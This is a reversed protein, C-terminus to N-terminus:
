YALNRNVAVYVVRGEREPGGARVIFTVAPELQEPRPGSKERLAGGQM